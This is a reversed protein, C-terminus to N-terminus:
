EGMGFHMIFVVKARNRRLKEEWLQKRRRMIQTAFAPMLRAAEPREMLYKWERQQEYLYRDTSHTELDLVFVVSVFNLLFPLVSINQRTFKVYDPIWLLLIKQDFASWLTIKRQLYYLVNTTIIKTTSRWRYLLQVKVVKKTTGLKRVRMIGKGFIWFRRIGHFESFTKTMEERSLRTTGTM